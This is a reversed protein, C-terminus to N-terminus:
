RRWVGSGWSYDDVQLNQVQIQVRIQDSKQYDKALKAQQRQALSDLIETSIKPNLNLKLLEKEWFLIAGLNKPNLANNKAIENIIDGLFNQFKEIFKPTDLNELLYDLLVQIQKQDTEPTINNQTAFSIIRAVDKRLNWLRMQSQWLKELTFNMQETYHHEMLMLRYAIPDFSFNQWFNDESNENLDYIKLEKYKKIIQQKFEQSFEQTPPNQFSYFGTTKFEGKVLFVNGLSKSMKKGDVLVFKNHIWYKSLHFGLAESQLIENKHHIDIHDEGGTHIDIEYLNDKLLHGFKGSFRQHGLIESIMAVCESHWGPCGWRNPLDYDNPDLKQYIEIMLDETNEFQNFKWKQLNNEPVFKWLAFDHPNRKETQIINRGTYNQNENQDDLFSELEMKLDTKRYEYLIGEFGVEKAKELQRENNDIVVVKENKDGLDAKIKEWFELDEKVFGVECSAYIKDFINEDLLHKKLFELRYKEQNTAVLIKYGGGRLDQALTLTEEIQHLDNQFWFDVFDDVNKSCKSQKLFPELVEKLDVEGTAIKSYNQKFFKTLDQDSIGCESEIKEKWKYAEILVGDIDFIIISKPTTPQLIEYGDGDISVVLDAKEQPKFDQIYKQSHTEFEQWFIEFGESNVEGQVDRNKARQKNDKQSSDLWIKLDSQINSFSKIGELIIVEKDEHSELESMLAQIDLEFNRHNWSDSKTDMGKMFELFKDQEIAVSNPILKTLKEALTSKGSGGRGDIAIILPKNAKQFQLEKITQVLAQITSSTAIKNKSVEEGSEFYIGDDTLYAKGDRLLELALIMQEGIYQTARPQHKGTPLDFNLAGCQDKFDQVYFNIIEDVTKQERKAGKEIKDEGDDGDDVLHGVDTINSVWETKYGAIKAVKSITDPLWVARMNGISQYNYVTPGCGYIKLKDEESAQIPLIKRQYSDFLHLNKPM